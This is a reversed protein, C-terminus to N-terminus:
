GGTLIRVNLAATADVVGQYYGTCGNDTFGSIIGYARHNKYVPGGSFGLQIPGPDADDSGPCFDVFALHRITQTVPKFDRNVVKVIGCAEKPYPTGTPAPAGTACVPVLTNKPNPTYSAHEIVYRQNEATQGSLPHV